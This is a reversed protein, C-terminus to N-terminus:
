KKATEVAAKWWRAHRFSAPAHAFLTSGGVISWFLAARHTDDIAMWAVLALKILLAAGARERLLGPKTALDLSFLALGSVLVALAQPGAALPAGLVVAGLAVVAVQHLGRLLVGLWRAPRPKAKSAIDKTPLIPSRPSFGPSLMSAIPLSRAEREDAGTLASPRM